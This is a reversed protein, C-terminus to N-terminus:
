IWKRRDIKKKKRQKNKTHNISIPTFIDSTLAIYSDQACTIWFNTANFIKSIRFNQLRCVEYGIKHNLQEQGLMKTEM